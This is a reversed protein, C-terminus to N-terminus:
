ASRGILFSIPIATLGLSNYYGMASINTWQPLHEEVRELVVFAIAAEVPAEDPLTAGAEELLELAHELSLV